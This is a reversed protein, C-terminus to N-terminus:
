KRLTAPPYGVSSDINCIKKYFNKNKQKKLWKEKNMADARSTQIEYYALKWEGDYKSTYNSLKNNHEFIRKELSYTQGIYFKDHKNNYLIYVYFQM